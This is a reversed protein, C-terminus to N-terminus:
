LSYSVSFFNSKQSPYRCYGIIFKDLNYAVGWTIFNEDNAIHQGCHVYLRKSLSIAGGILHSELHNESDSEYYEKVFDYSITASILDKNLLRWASGLRLCRALNSKYNTFDNHYKIPPGLNCFAAGLSLGGTKNEGITLFPLLNNIQIGLDGSLGKGNISQIGDSATSPANTYILKASAGLAIKRTLNHGYGVSVYIFNYSFDTAIYDDGTIRADLNYLYLGTGLGGHHKFNRVAGVYYIESNGLWTGYNASASLEDCNALGAPNYYLSAVDNVIATAAGASSAYRTEPNILLWVEDAFVLSALSFSFFIIPLIQHKSFNGM